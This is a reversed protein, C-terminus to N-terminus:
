AGPQPNVYPKVAPVPVLAAEPVKPGWSLVVAQAVDVAVQKLLPYLAVQKALAQFVPFRDLHPHFQALGNTVWWTVLLPNAQIYSYVTDLTM